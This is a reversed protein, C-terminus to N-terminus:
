NDTKENIIAPLGDVNLTCISFLSADITGPTRFNQSILAEVLQMGCSVYVTSSNYGPTKDMGAYDMYIIGVSANHLPNKLYDIVLRNTRGANERYHDSCVLGMYAAPSNFVWVPTASIMKELHWGEATCAVHAGPLSLDAVMRSDALPAMWKSHDVHPKYADASSTESDEGGQGWLRKLYDTMQENAATLLIEQNNQGNATICGNDYHLTTRTPANERWTWLSQNNENPTLVIQGKVIGYTEKAASEELTSTYDFYFINFAPPVMENGIYYYRILNGHSVPEQTGFNYCDVVRTYDVTTETKMDDKKWAKTTGTTYYVCYWDGKIQEGLQNQNEAPTPIDDSSTCSTLTAVTGSITLIATMVWLLSKKM